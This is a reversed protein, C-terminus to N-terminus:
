APRSLALLTGFSRIDILTRFANGDSSSSHISYVNWPIERLSYFAATDGKGSLPLFSPLFLPLSIAMSLERFEVDREMERERERERESTKM